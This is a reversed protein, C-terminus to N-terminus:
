AGLAGESASRLAEIAQPVAAAIDEATWGDPRRAELLEGARGHLWVGARAADWPAVGKALLGGIVGTLVDGSGATALVSSNTPNVSVGNSSAVLSYRGKLVSVGGQLALERAAGFRDPEVPAGLLRRAEGPHPTRVVGEGVPGGPEFLADADLVVQRGHERVHRLGEQCAPDLPRGGGIGPGIAAPGRDFARELSDRLPEVHVMVAAPLRALRPLTEPRACLTVLGCGVALAGLCVLVGAGAMEPSGAVVTLGGERHKWTWPSRQPVFAALECPDAIRGVSRDSAHVGIDVLEIEGALRGGGTFFVPKLRGFTVTLDAIPVPGLLAGTDAHLGSPLDVAVRPVDLAAVVRLASAYPEGVDRALGTGFVADLVLGVQGEPGSVESVGARIAASRMVAADGRAEGGVAWVRVPVGRRHLWRAAGWGDGGNNGPGCVVLVGRSAPQAFRELVALAVGRSAVEMLAVGPVGLGDIVAADLARCGAADALHAGAFRSGLGAASERGRRHEQSM